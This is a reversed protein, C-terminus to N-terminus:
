LHAHRRNQSSSLLPKLAPLQWQEEEQSTRRQANRKARITNGTLYRRAAMADQEALKLARKQCRESIEMYANALMNPCTSFGERRQKAQTKLVARRAARRDLLCREKTVKEGLELGRMCYRGHHSAKGKKQVVYKIKELTHEKERTSIWCQAHEEDTYDIRNLTDHVQTPLDSVFSVSANKWRRLSRGGFAQVHTATLKQLKKWSPGPSNATAFTSHDSGDPSINDYRFLRDM